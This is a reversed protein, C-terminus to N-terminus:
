KPSIEFSLFKICNTIASLASEARATQMALDWSQTLYVNEDYLLTAPECSGNYRHQITKRGWPIDHLLEVYILSQSYTTQVDFFLNKSLFLLFMQFMSRDLFLLLQSSHFVDVELIPLLTGSKHIRIPLQSADTSMVDSTVWVHCAKRFSLNWSVIYHCLDHLAGAICYAQVFYSTSFNASCLTRVCVSLSTSRRSGQAGQIWMWDVSYNSIYGSYQMFSELSSVWFSLFVQIWSKLLNSCVKSTANDLKGSKTFYLTRILM